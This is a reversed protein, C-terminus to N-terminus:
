AETREPARLRRWICGKLYGGRRVTRGAQSTQTAGTPVNGLTQAARSMWGLSESALGGAEAQSRRYRSDACAGALRSCFDADAGYVLDQIGRFEHELLMALGPAM